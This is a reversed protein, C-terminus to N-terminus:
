QMAPRCHGGAPWPHCLHWIPMAPMHHRCPPAFCQTHLPPLCVCVCVRVCVCVFEVRTGDATMIGFGTKCPLKTTVVHSPASEGLENVATVTVGISRAYQTHSWFPIELKVSMSAGVTADAAQSWVVASWSLAPDAVSWAKVTYKIIVAGKHDPVVWQVSVNSANVTFSIAQVEEARVIPSAPPLAARVAASHNSPDGYSRDAFENSAAVVVGYWPGLTVPGIDLVLLPTSSNDVPSLVMKGSPIAQLGDYLDPSELNTVSENTAGHEEWLTVNQVRYVTAHYLALPRGGTSAPRTLSVRLMNTVSASDLFVMSHIAPASPRGILVSSLLPTAYESAGKANVARVRVYFQTYAALGTLHLVVAGTGGDEDVEAVPLTATGDEPTFSAQRSWSLTYNLVPSGGDDAPMVDVLMSTPWQPGRRTATLQPKSPVAAVLVSHPASLPSSMQAVNSVNAVISYTCGTCLDPIVVASGSASTVTPATHGVACEPHSALTMVHKGFACGAVMATVSFEKVDVGGSSPTVMDVELSEPPEGVKVSTFTPAEPTSAQTISLLAGGAEAQGKLLQGGITLFVGLGVGVSAPAVCTVKTHAVRSPSGCPVGNVTVSDVSADWGSPGFNSGQIEIPGGSASVFQPVVAAGEPPLYNLFAETRGSPRQGEVFLQVPWGKGTGPPAAIEMDTSQSGMMAASTVEQGAVYARVTTTAETYTAQSMGVIVTEGATGIDTPDLYLPTQNDPLQRYCAVNALATFELRGSLATIGASPCVFSFPHHDHISTDTDIEVSAYQFEIAAPEWAVTNPELSASWVRNHHIHSKVLTLLNGPHVMIAPGGTANNYAVTTTHVYATSTGAIDIATATPGTNSHLVCDFLNLSSGTLVAIAAGDTASACHEVVTRVLTVTAGDWVKVGPATYSDSHGVVADAMRVTAGRVFVNAGNFALNHTITAGQIDADANWLFLCGGFSDLNNVCTLDKMVSEHSSFSVQVAGGGGFGENGEFRCGELRIWAVEVAALAGGGGGAAANTAFTCNHATLTTMAESLYMAGGGQTKAENGEFVSTNAVVHVNRGWLVPGQPASTAQFVSDVITVAAPQWGQAGSIDEDSTIYLGGSVQTAVNAAQGLAAAVTCSQLTVDVTGWHTYVAWTDGPRDLDNVGGQFSLLANRFTVHRGVAQVVAPEDWSGHTHQGQDDIPFGAAGYGAKITGSVQLTGGQMMVKVKTAVVQANYDKAKNTITVPAMLVCEELQVATATANVFGNIRLHRFAGTTVVEVAGTTFGTAFQFNASSIYGGPSAVNGVWLDHLVVLDEQHDLLQCAPCLWGHLLAQSQFNYMDSFGFGPNVSIRGSAATVHSGRLFASLLEVRGGAGLAVEDLTLLSFKDAVVHSRLEVFRLTVSAAQISFAEHSAQASCLLIPKTVSGPVAEISVQVDQLSIIAASDTSCSHSGHKLYVPVCATFGTCALKLAHALTKVPSSSTGENADSGSSWVYM